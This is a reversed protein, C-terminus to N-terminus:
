YISSPLYTHPRLTVLLLCPDDPYVGKHKCIRLCNERPLRVKPCHPKRHNKNKKANERYKVKIPKVTSSISGLAPHQRWVVTM